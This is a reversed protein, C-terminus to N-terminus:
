CFSHARCQVLVSKAEMDDLGHTCFFFALPLNSVSINLQANNGQDNEVLPRLPYLIVQACWDLWMKASFRLCIAMWVPWICYSELLEGLDSSCVRTYDANHGKSHTSIYHCIPLEVYQTTQSYLSLWIVWCSYWGSGPLEYCSDFSSHLECLFTFQSM